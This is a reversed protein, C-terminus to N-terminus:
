GDCGFFLEQDIAALEDLAADRLRDIREKYDMLDQSRIRRHEDIGTFPIEGAELQKVLFAPSVYIASAAEAITMEPNVSSFVM